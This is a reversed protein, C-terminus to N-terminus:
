GAFVYNQAVWLERGDQMRVYVHGPALQLATAPYRNGDAWQVLVYRGPPSASSPQAAAPLPPTTPSTIRAELYMRLIPEVNAEDRMGAQFDYLQDGIQRRVHVTYSDYTGTADTTTRVYALLWGDAIREARIWRNPPPFNAESLAEELTGPYTSPEVTDFSAILRNPYLVVTEGTVQLEPALHPPFSVTLKGQHFLAQGNPAGAAQAARLGEATVGQGNSYADMLYQNVSM